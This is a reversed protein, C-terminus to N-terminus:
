TRLKKCGGRESGSKTSEKKANLLEAEEANEPEYSVSLVIGNLSKVVAEV